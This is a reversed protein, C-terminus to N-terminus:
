SSFLLTPVSTPADEPFPALSFSCPGLTFTYCDETFMTLGLPLFHCHSVCILFSHNDLYSIIVNGREYVQAGPMLVISEGRLEDCLHEMGMSILPKTWPCTQFCVIMQFMAQNIAIEAFNSHAHGTLIAGVSVFPGNPECVCIHHTDQPWRMAIPANTNQATRGIIVSITAFFASLPLLPLPLCISVPYLKPQLLWSGGERLPDLSLHHPSCPTKM